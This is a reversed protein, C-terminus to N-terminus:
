PRSERHGQGRRCHKAGSCCPGRQEEARHLNGSKCVPCESPRGTGYALEWSHQCDSCRFKRMETMAIDGGKIVLARGEILASAVKRRASEIIRGFTQRSIDMRASAQEHYLGDFDGLRIAELEDVTLVVSEQRPLPSGSPNFRRCRPLAAVTRCCKPRAM